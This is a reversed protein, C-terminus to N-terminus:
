ERTLLVPRTKYLSDLYSINKKNKEMSGKLYVTSAPRASGTGPLGTWCIDASSLAALELLLHFETRDNSDWCNHGKRATELLGVLFPGPM